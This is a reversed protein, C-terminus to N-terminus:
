SSRPHPQRHARDALGLQHGHRQRHRDRRRAAGAGRRDPDRQPDQHRRRAPDMMLSQTGAKAAGDAAYGADFELRLSLKPIATRRALEVPIGNKLTAHEIAPFTLKGVEAIAPFARKPGTALEPAPAKADPPPLPPPKTAGAAWRRAPRDRANARCSRDAYLRSPDALAADRGQRRGAQARGHTGARTQLQRCRRCLAARRRPDRGQRLLRRGTRARRDPELREPDCARQLEDATPGNAVLDAIVEDFRKEALARDVGPKVDM